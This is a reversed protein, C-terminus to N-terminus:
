EYKAQTEEYSLIKESDKTVVLSEHFKNPRKGDPTTNTNWYKLDDRRPAHGFNAGGVIAREKELLVLTLAVDVTRPLQAYIIGPAKIYNVLHSWGESSNTNLENQTEWSADDPVTIGVSQILIPQDKYLDGITMMVMPPIMFRNMVGNYDSTTYNAPKILTTLYNIRQWTPALEIISGIVISFNLSLNRTFGAYSYVKDGRGILPIDEWSAAGTESLGKITARFPIYKENIIDYFFFAVQDDYYAQWTSKGRIGSSTRNGNENFSLAEVELIGHLDKSGKADLVTLRNISDFQGNTPLGKSLRPSSAVNYDIMQTNADRYKQLLGLSTASRGKDKKIASIRDYGNVSNKGSGVAFSDDPLNVKYILNPQGGSNQINDLSKKLSINISEIDEKKTRKTPFKNEEDAYEAYDLMVTSARFEKDVSTGVSDGYRIGPKLQNSSEKIDIGVMGVGEISGKSADAVHSTKGDPNNSIRSAFTNQGGPRIVNGSNGGGALWIQTFGFIKSNGKYGFRDGGAGVMLGYTGEDSRQRIGSQSAPIFNAFLSTVLNKVISGFSFNQRGVPVWAAELHAKARNATGARILGKGGTNELPGGTLADPATGYPKYIKPPGFIADPIANGILTRAIGGLGAFLGGGFASTDFNRQPRISGLALGMGAAVIPSTPNYIRTENFPNGTQLLFQKGLFIIGRGSGLFKAVRIVDIPAAGIPFIRSDYKRLANLGKKNEDAYVYYFPEKDGFVKNILTMDYDTYPSLRHYLSHYNNEWISQLKGSEPQNPYNEPRKILAWTPELTQQSGM